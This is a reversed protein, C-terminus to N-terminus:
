WVSRILPSIGAPREKRSFRIKIGLKAVLAGIVQGSTPLRPMVERETISGEREEGIMYAMGCGSSTLTM